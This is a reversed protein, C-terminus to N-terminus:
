WTESAVAVRFGDEEKTLTICARETSSWRRARRARGSPASRRRRGFSSPLRTAGARRTTAGGLARFFAGPIGCEKGTVSVYEGEAGSSIPGARRRQVRESRIVGARPQLTVTDAVAPPPSAPLGPPWSCCRSLARRMAAFPQQLRRSLVAEDALASARRAPYHGRAVQVCAKESGTWVWGVGPPAGTDTLQVKRIERWVRKGRDFRQLTTVRRAGSGAAPLQCIVFFMGPHGRASPFPPGCNAGEVETSTAGAARRGIVAHDAARIRPVM